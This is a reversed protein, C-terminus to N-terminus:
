NGEELATLEDEVHATLDDRDALAEDVLDTAAAEPTVTAPLPAMAPTVQKQEQGSSSRPSMASNSQKQMAFQSYVVALMVLMLFLVFGFGLMKRPIM